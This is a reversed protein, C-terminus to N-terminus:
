EESQIEVAAGLQRLTPIFAPFSEGIIEADSIEVPASAGLGAVTLAMALRHDGHADCIGGLPQHGGEIVFGDPKELITMGLKSLETCLGAIRDSEKIRLEAADAVVSIGDAYVAAVAFIPFEDIMRVVQEGQVTGAHLQSYKVLLNGVPEGARTSPQQIRIDAGMALLADLLGTRTPNLGVERILVQSGPTILAAVMLFAASSFDGPLSLILPSFTLTRPPTITTVYRPSNNEMKKENSVSIGQSRLMRETHDRSLGPESLTSPGDAALAALMLCSKVQASAMPLDHNLAQLPYKARGIEFPAYGDTSQIPVGMQSLPDLIRGMPRKRLGASGDLTASVGVASLMGALLRMCTASNGCHLSGQPTKLGRLGQGHVVLTEGVLTWDIGLQTLANLMVRTVGSDLFRDIRSEGQALAALLAARHSISKDGPIEATGRLPSGSSVTINM